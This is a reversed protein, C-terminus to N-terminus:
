GAASCQKTRLMSTKRSFCARPFWRRMQVGITCCFDIFGATSRDVMAVQHLSVRPHM